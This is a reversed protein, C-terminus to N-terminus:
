LTILTLYFNFTTDASDLIFFFMIFFVFLMIFLYICFFLSFLYLVYIFYIFVFFLIFLYLVSRNVEVKSVGQINKIHIYTGKWRSKM